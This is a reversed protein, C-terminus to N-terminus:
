KVHQASGNLVSSCACVNLGFAVNLGADAAFHSLEEWRPMTMTLPIPCEVEGERVAAPLTLIMYQTM